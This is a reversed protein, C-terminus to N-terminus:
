FGVRDKRSTQLQIAIRPVGFDILLTQVTADAGQETSAKETRALRSFCWHRQVQDQSCVRALKQQMTLSAMNSPLRGSFFHYVCSRVAGKGCLIFLPCTM